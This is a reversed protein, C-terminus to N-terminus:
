VHFMSGSVDLESSSVWVAMKIADNLDLMEFANRYPFKIRFSTYLDYTLM